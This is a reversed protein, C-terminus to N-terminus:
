KFPKEEISDKVKPGVWLISKLKLVAIASPLPKHILVIVGLINKKLVISNLVL